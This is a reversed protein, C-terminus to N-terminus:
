RNVMRSLQAREKESHKELEQTQSAEKATKLFSETGIVLAGDGVTMGCGTEWLACLVISAKILNDVKKNSAYTKM